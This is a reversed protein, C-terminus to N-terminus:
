TLNDSRATEIECLIFINSHCLEVVVSHVCYETRKKIQASQEFGEYQVEGM